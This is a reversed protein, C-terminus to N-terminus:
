AHGYGSAYLAGGHKRPRGRPRGVKGGQLHHAHHAHHAHHRHIGEGSSMAYNIAMDGAKNLAKEALPQLLKGVSKMQPSNFSGEIDGWLSGGHKKHHKVRGGKMLAPAIVDHGLQFGLDYPNFPISNGMSFAQGAKHGIDNIVDLFGGGTANVVHHGLQNALRVGNNIVQGKYKNAQYGLDQLIGKGRLHQHNSQQYPDLTINVGKGKEHAKCIKKHQEHSVHIQCGKGHLVRVPHGNLFKSIQNASLHKIEIPNYM